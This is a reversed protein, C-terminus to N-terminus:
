MLYSNNLSRCIYKLNYLEKKSTDNSSLFLQFSINSMAPKRRISWQGGIYLQFITPFPTLCWLGGRFLGVLV